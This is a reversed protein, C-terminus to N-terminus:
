EGQAPPDADDRQLPRWLRWVLFVAALVIMGIGAWLNIRVGAAKDIEDQGDFIGAVVLIAGFVTFLAVILDRLDFLRSSASGEQESM